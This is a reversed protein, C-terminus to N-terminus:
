GDHRQHIASSHALAQSSEGRRRWKFVGNQGCMISQIPHSSVSIAITHPHHICLGLGANEAEKRM